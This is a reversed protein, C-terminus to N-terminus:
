IRCLNKKKGNIMAVIILIYHLEQTLLGLKIYANTSIEKGHPQVYYKSMHAVVLELDRDMLIIPTLIQM